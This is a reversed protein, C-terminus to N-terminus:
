GIHQGLFELTRERALHATASNYKPRTDNDFGHPAGPYTYIPTGAQAKKISELADPPIVADEEGIHMIAPHRAHEDPFHSIESPYYAVVGDVKRRCAFLWCASGGWCFGIVGVKDAGALRIIERAVEIDDLATDWVVKGAIQLGRDRGESSFRLNVDREIRDFLQPAVTLYGAHAYFDCVSELYQNVGFIEHCIVVGGKPKGEPDALYAGLEFGDLGTITIRKGM